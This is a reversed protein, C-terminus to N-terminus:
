GSAVAGRQEDICPPGAYVYLLAQVTHAPRPRGIKGDIIGESDGLGPSLTLVTARHAPIVGWLSATSGKEIYGRYGAEWAERAKIIAATHAMLSAAETSPM